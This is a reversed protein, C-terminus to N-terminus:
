SEDSTMGDLALWAAVETDFPQTEEPPIDVAGPHVVFGVYMGSVPLRVVDYVESRARSRIQLKAKLQAVTLAARVDRRYRELFAIDSQNLM